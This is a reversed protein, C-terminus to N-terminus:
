LLNIHSYFLCSTIVNILISPHHHGSDAIQVSLFPHTEYVTNLFFHCCKSVSSHAPLPLLWTIPWSSCQHHRCFIPSNPWAVNINITLYQPSTSSIPLFGPNFQSLNIIHPSVSQYLLSSWTPPLSLKVLAHSPTLLHFSTPLWQTSLVSSTSSTTLPSPCLLLDYNIKDM